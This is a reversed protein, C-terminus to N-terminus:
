KKVETKVAAKAVASEAKKAAKEADAKAKTEAKEADDLRKAEAEAELEEATKSEVSAEDADSVLEGETFYVAGMDAVLAAREDALELSEGAKFVFEGAKTTVHINAKTTNKIIAM